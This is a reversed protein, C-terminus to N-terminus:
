IQFLSARIVFSSPIVFGSYCIRECRSRKKEDNTM